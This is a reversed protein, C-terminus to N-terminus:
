SAGRRIADLKKYQSVGIKYRRYNQPSMGVLRKFQSNFYSISDYGARLAVETIPYDTTFLLCQAEGLRRRIIYQIPSFGFRKKFQHAFGSVSMHAEVSLAEVTLPELFHSDMYDKIALFTTDKESDQPLPDKPVEQLLIELLAYLAARNTGFSPSAGRRVQNLLVRFLMRLPEQLRGAGAHLLPSIQPPLLANKPMGALQIGDAGLNYFWLGKQPDAYEDHLAGANYVLVDGRHAEYVHSGVCIRGQGGCILQIELNDRHVHFASPMLCERRGNYGVYRLRLTKFSSDPLAKQSFLSSFTSRKEKAYVIPM